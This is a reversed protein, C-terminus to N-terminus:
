KLLCPVKKWQYMKNSKIVKKQPPCLGGTNKKIDWIKRSLTTQNSYKESKLSQKHNSFREKFM